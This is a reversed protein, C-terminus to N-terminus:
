LEAYAAPLDREIEYPTFFYAMRGARQEKLPADRLSPVAHIELTKGDRKAVFHANGVETKWGALELLKAIPALTRQALDESLAEDVLGSEMYHGLALALHRNLSPHHFRNGYHRLCTECSAGCTCGRLSEMAGSFVQEFHRAAEVAYGAGGSLTDYVFIDAFEGADDSGFRYGASVERADIDLTRGISLVLSESLSQLADELPRRLRMTSASFRLPSQLRIRLLLVDSPFSYGLYVRQFRGKCKGLGSKGWRVYYDREHPGPRDGELLVKGCSTCVDFGEHDGGVEGKNVMVLSQARESALLGRTGFAQFIIKQEADPLPLQAQTVQSYVQDDDFEDIETGGRPYVVEPRVVTMTELSNNGCQPCVGVADDFVGFGATYTCETCHRYSRATDFLHEARNPEADTASAAVTGVRYTKKNLVVLRGPAYESLAVNMAQQTQEITKFDGKKAGSEQIKLTCLDRPFAYSPLVGLSFLYELLSSELRDKTAPKNLELRAILARGVAAGDLSAPLWEQAKRLSEVGAETELWSRFEQLSGAGTGQFFDWTDGLATFITASASTTALPKFFDQLLQAHAHRAAIQVNTTDLVPRPPDGALIRKPNSFYHSDHASAQAYTLVTSVSSGRRGARGSRQQYNQRMPPVNRMAVALLSGIDIGVEMTTTCSLVDVAREEPKLVDRFRREFEETTPTPNAEDKYSLQASHEQVDISMPQELRAMVSAVPDRWFGKRARLYSTAEPDVTAPSPAGCGACHGLFAAPLVHKCEECQVWQTDFAPQLVNRKPSLYVGGDKEDALAEALSSSLKLADIGRAQLVASQADSFVSGIKTPQHPFPSAKRRIGEGLGAHFGQRAMLRQIWAVSLEHREVPTFSALLLDLQKRARSGPKVFGLTLASISYYTTCLQKLLLASYASPVLDFHELADELDSGCLNRYLRVDSELKKRDDGDFFTLNNDAVVKVFATYMTVDLRPEHGIEALERAALFLGQRFVDLEIERPIDRALRAAKQRGDSFILTKRGGNPAQPTPAASLPQLAVQARVLHAFAAEGKTALDMARPTEPRNSQQCAPCKAVSAVPRGRDKTDSGPRFLAIYDAEDNSSPADNRLKGSWIHLWVHSRDKAHAYKKGPPLVFFQGEQLRANSWVGNSAEHWLFDGDGPQTFGRLFAAGCTRHTLLEYVRAGCDCAVRPELFVRGLLSSSNSTNARDPCRPNSCAYLGPLGRFFLHARVSCFPRGTSRNRAFAMLALLTEAAAARDVHAGFVRNSLEDLTLSDQTILNAAFAAFASRQLIHFAFDRLSVEDPGAGDVGSKLESALNRLAAITAAGTSAQLAPLDFSALVAAEHASAPRGQERAQLESRVLVFQETTGGTLKAAFEVIDKRAQDSAGLSASTLIYQMRDRPVCLRAQLRRLLYAVEAGGSGRYMHAEDLVVTIKNAPHSHLWAQTDSFISSEIPRLMMYELMSYNTVLLDPPTAQMEHRTVLEVDESATRLGGDIFREINKAPWKGESKLRERLEESIGDMYLQRLVAAVNKKDKQPDRHGPYPTRSIYMGFTARRGGAVEFESLVSTSSLLRRLRGLQDNVLANMPYLLLARVGRSDWIAPREVAEDILNCLIPMLFSETKGSGTGTAVVIDTRPKSGLYIAKEQHTYPIPPIGTSGEKSLNTLLRSAVGSIALEGYPKGAAYVPTAELYPPQHTAGPTSFIRRREEILDEDWIHYSASLYQHLNTSLGSFVSQVSYFQQSM